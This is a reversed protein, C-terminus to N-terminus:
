DPFFSIFSASAFHTVQETIILHRPYNYTNAYRPIIEGDRELHHYFIRKSKVFVIKIYIIRIKIIMM